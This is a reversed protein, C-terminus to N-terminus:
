NPAEEPYIEWMFVDAHFLAEEVHTRPLWAAQFRWRHLRRESVGLDFALHTTPEDMCGEIRVLVRDCWERFPQPDIREEPPVKGKGSWEMRANDAKTAAKSSEPESTTLQGSTIPRGPATGGHERQREKAQEELQTTVQRGEQLAWKLTEEFGSPLTFDGLPSNV